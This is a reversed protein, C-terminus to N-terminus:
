AAKRAYPIYNVLSYRAYRQGTLDTKLESEIRYGAEKLDLIRRPLARCKYIAQAEVNSIPGYEQLHNLIAATMPPLSRKAPTAM